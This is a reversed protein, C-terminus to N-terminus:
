TRPEDPANMDDSSTTSTRNAHARATLVRFIHAPVRAASRAARLQAIGHWLYRAGTSCTTCRTSRPRRGVGLTTSRRAGGLRRARSAPRPQGRRVIANDSARTRDERLCISSTTTPRCSACAGTARCRRPNDRRIRNVRAIFDALSDAVTSTGTGCSTSRRICTSRAARTSRPETSWCSTRRGTSATTRRVAHRRARPDRCSRRAGARLALAETLIDPTNPWVNPGSTSAARHARRARHLIATLEQARHQAVRLVHVVAHVRAERTRHM